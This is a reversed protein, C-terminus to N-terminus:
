TKEEPFAEHIAQRAKAHGENLGDLLSRKSAASGAKVTDEYVRKSRERFEQGEAVLRAREAQGEAVLESATQRAAAIIARGEEELKANHVQKAVADRELSEIERSANAVRREWSSALQEGYREESTPGPKGAASRAQAEARREAMTTM